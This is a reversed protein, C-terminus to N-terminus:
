RPPAGGPRRLPAMVGLAVVTGILIEFVGLAMEAENLSVFGGSLTGFGVIGLMCGVSMRILPGLGGSRGVGM